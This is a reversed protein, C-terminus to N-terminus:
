YLMRITKISVQLILSEKQIEGKNEKIKPKRSHDQPKRKYHM